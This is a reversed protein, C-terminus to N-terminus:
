RPFFTNGATSQKIEQVCEKVASKCEELSVFYGNKTDLVVQFELLSNLNKYEYRPQHLAAGM